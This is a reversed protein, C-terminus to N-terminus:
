FLTSTIEGGSLMLSRSEISPHVDERHCRTAVRPLTHCCITAVRRCRTAAYPPLEVAYTNDYEEMSGKM